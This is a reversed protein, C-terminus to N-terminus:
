EEKFACEIHFSIELNGEWLRLPVDDIVRKKCLACIPEDESLNTYNTPNRLLVKVEDKLNDSIDRM